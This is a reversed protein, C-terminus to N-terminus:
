FHYKVGIRLSHERLRQSVNVVAKGDKYNMVSNDTSNRWSYEYEGTLSWKDRIVRDFGVGVVFSPQKLKAKSGLENEANYQFTIDRCKVGAIAYVVSKVGRIYGGFKAKVGYSIGDTKTKALTEPVFFGQSRRNKDGFAVDGALGAYFGKYFYSYGINVAPDFRYRKHMAFATGPTPSKGSDLDVHDGDVVASVTSYSGADQHKVETMHYILDIGVSFGNFVRGPCGESCKTNATDVKEAADAQAFSPAMVLLFTLVKASSKM